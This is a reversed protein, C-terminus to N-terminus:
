LVKFKVENLESRFKFNASIEIQEGDNVYVEKELPFITQPMLTDTTYFNVGDCIKVLSSLRVSNALGSTITTIKISDDVKEPNIENLDYSDFVKSETLIRPQKIGTFQAIPSKMEIGDFVYDTNCVEILNVIKEPIAVGNPKLLRKVASNMVLVQPEDIMWISLMECFVVDVKEPLDVEMANAHILEINTLGSAEINKKAFAYVDPDLEVAYVKKAKRAAHISFIGTGCGLECFVTDESVVKDIAKKFQGVREQDSVMELHYALHFSGKATESYDPTHHKIRAM